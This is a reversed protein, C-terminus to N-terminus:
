KNEETKTAPTDLKVGEKELASKVADEVANDGARLDVMEGNVFFTPSADVGHAVGVAVDFDIKSTAKKSALDERFKAIDLKLEQAYGAFFDARDTATASQWNQQNEYILTNMEWFKGQLGAAEAAAAAARANPHLKTIPFNRFVVAVSDEYKKAINNITASASRCGPCQYDGYEILVVKADKNGAVHDGINGNREEAGIIKNMQEKTIDSIDIRNGTSMYVMGGIVALVIVVFVLWHKGEM